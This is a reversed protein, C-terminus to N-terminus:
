VDERAYLAVELTGPSEADASESPQISVQLRGRGPSSVLYWDSCDNAAEACDLADPTPLGLALPRAESSSGDPDPAPTPDTACAAFLAV